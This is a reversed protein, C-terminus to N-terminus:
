GLALGCQPCTTRALPVAAGAAWCRRTAATLAAGGTRVLRVGQIVAEDGTTMRMDVDGGVRDVQMGVDRIQGKHGVQMRMITQEVVPRLAAQLAAWDTQEDRLGAAYCPAIQALPGAAQQMGVKLAAILPERASPPLAQALDPGTDLLAAAVLAGSAPDRAELAQQIQAARTDDDLDPKLLDYALSPEKM